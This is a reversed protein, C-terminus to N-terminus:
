EEVKQVRCRIWRLARYIKGGLYQEVLTTREMESAERM